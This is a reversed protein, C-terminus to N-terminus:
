GSSAPSTVQLRNDVQQVSETCRVLEQAVQKLYYSSVRGRLVLVGEFFDCSISRLEGSRAQRLVSEAAAIILEKEKWPSVGTSRISIGARRLATEIM